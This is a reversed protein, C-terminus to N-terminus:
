AALDRYDDHQSAIAGEAELKARMAASMYSGPPLPASPTPRRRAKKAAQHLTDRATLKELTDALQAKVVEPDPKEVQAVPAPASLTRAKEVAARARNYARAFRGCANSTRAMHALKGPKPVWQSDPLAIYAVMGAEISSATMGDLAEFYDAFFAAWEVETRATRLDGFTQERSKIISVIDDHSAPRLAEQRLAPMMMTAQSRLVESEAIVREAIADSPEDLLWSRLPGTLGPLRVTETREAPLNAPPFATMPKAQM